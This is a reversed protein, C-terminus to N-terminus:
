VSRCGVLATGVGVFLGTAGVVLQHAWPEGTPGLIRYSLELAEAILGLHGLLCGAERLALTEPNEYRAALVGMEALLLLLVGQGPDRVQSVEERLPAAANHDVNVRRLVHLRSLYVYWAEGENLLLQLSHLAGASPVPRLEREPDSANVALTSLSYALLAELSQLGLKSFSSGSRRKRIVAALDNVSLGVQPMLVQDYTDPFTFRRYEEPVAKPRPSSWGFRSM